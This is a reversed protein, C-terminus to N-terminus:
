SAVAQKHSTAVRLHRPGREQVGAGDERGPETGVASRNYRSAGIPRRAEPVDRCRQCAVDLPNSMPALRNGAHFQTLIPDHPHQVGVGPPPTPLGHPLAVSVPQSARLILPPAM